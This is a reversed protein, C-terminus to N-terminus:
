LQILPAELGAPVPLEFPLLETPEFPLLGAPAAVLGTTAVYILLAAFSLAGIVSFVIGTVARRRGVPAFGDWWFRRSTQIGRIGLVFAILGTLWFPNVAVSLLGLALAASAKTNRLRKHRPARRQAGATNSRPAPEDDREDDLSDELSDDLGDGLLYEDDWGDEALSHESAGGTEGLAPQASEPLPVPAPEQVILEAPIADLPDNRQAGDATQEREAPQSDDLGERDLMEVIASTATTPSPRDSSFETAARQDDSVPSSAALEEEWDLVAAPRDSAADGAEGPTERGDSEMIRVALALRDQLTLKTDLLVHWVPNAADEEATSGLEQEDAALTEREHAISAADDDTLVPADRASVGDLPHHAEAAAHPLEGANGADVFLQFEDPGGALEQDVGPVPFAAGVHRDSASSWSADPEDSASLRTPLAFESSAQEVEGTGLTSQAPASDREFLRFDTPVDVVADEEYPTPQADEAADIGAAATEISAARAPELIREAPELVGIFSARRGTRQGAPTDRAIRATRGAAPPAPEHLVSRTWAIGDWWRQRAADAPDPYWGAPPLRNAAAPM